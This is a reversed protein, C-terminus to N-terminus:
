QKQHNLGTSIQVETVQYSNSPVPNNKETIHKSIETNTCETVSSSIAMDFTIQDLHRGHIFGDGVALMRRVQKGLQKHVLCECTRLKNERHYIVGSYEVHLLSTGLSPYKFLNPSNTDAAAHM